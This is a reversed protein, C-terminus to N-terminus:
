FSLAAAGSFKDPGTVSGESVTTFKRTTLDFVGVAFADRPAFFVKSGVTAAGSFKYNMTVTGTSVTEFSDTAVDFIGVM